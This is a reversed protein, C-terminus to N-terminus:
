DTLSAAIEDVSVVTSHTKNPLIIYFKSTSDPFHSLLANSFYARVLTDHSGVFISVNKCNCKAAYESNNLSHIQCPGCSFPFICTLATTLYWAASVLSYIPAFLLLQTFCTSKSALYLIFSCGISHGIGIVKSCGSDNRVHHLVEESHDLVTPVYIPEDHDSRYNFTYVTVGIRDAISQLLVQLPYRNYIDRKYLSDENGMCYLIACKFKAETPTFKGVVVGSKLEYIHDSRIIECQINPFIRSSNSGLIYPECM